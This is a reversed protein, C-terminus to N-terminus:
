WIKNKDDPVFCYEIGDEKFITRKCIEKLEQKYRLHHLLYYLQYDYDKNIKAIIETKISGPKNIGLYKSISLLEKVTFLNLIKTTYHSQM